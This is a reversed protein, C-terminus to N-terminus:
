LMIGFYPFHVHDHGKISLFNGLTHFLHCCLYQIKKWCTCLKYYLGNPDLVQWYVYVNGCLFNYSFCFVFQLYLKGMGGIFLLLIRIGISDVFSVTRLLNFDSNRAHFWIILLCNCRPLIPVYLVVLLIELCLVRAYRSCYNKVLFAMEISHLYFYEICVWHMHHLMM